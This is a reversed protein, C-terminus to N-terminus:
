KLSTDGKKGRVIIIIIIIIIIIKSTRSSSSLAKVKLGTKTFPKELYSRAFSNGQGPKSSHDKQNRGGSYTPNCIHAV